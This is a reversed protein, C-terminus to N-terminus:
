LFRAKNKEITNETNQKIINKFTDRSSCFNKIENFDLKGIKKREHIRSKTNQM